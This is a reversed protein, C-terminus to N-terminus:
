LFNAFGYGPEGQGFYVGRLQFYLSVARFITATDGAVEIYRKLAALSIIPDDFLKLLGQDAEILQNFNNIINVHVSVASSPVPVLLFEKVMKQYSAIIVNLKNIDNKNQSNMAQEVILLENDDSPPADKSMISGMKNGYARLTDASNSQDTKIDKYTYTKAESIGFTTNSIINEALQEQVEPTINTGTQKISMYNTFIQRAIDTTASKSKEETTSQPALPTGQADVKITDNPGKALPNRGFKVEQGDSTGDGDSDAKESDTGILNEEWDPLGDKDTDKTDVQTQINEKSDVALVQRLDQQNNKPSYFYAIVIGGVALICAILIPALKKSPL